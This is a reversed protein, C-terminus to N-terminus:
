RRRLMLQLIGAARGDVYRVKITLRLRRDVALRHRAARNLQVSMAFTGGNNLRRQATQIRRSRDGIQAVLALAITGPQSAMIAIRTRGRHVLAQRRASSLPRVSLVAALGPERADHFRTSAESPLVSSHSSPTSPARCDDGECPSIKTQGPDPVGDIRADYLDRSQDVDSSRLRDRTTFFVDHGNRSADLFTSLDSGKGSSILHVRRTVTDYEYVDMVDNEDEPQLRETTNFFVFRGDDSLPHNQYSTSASTGLGAQTGRFSADGTAAAGTPNCSACRLDGTGANASADYVYVEECALDTLSPCSSGHDYASHGYLSLLEDSGETIFVLHTGDPSVRSTQQQSAGVGLIGETEVLANVGAVERVLGDQEHWVFIRRGGTPGGTSGTPSGAVLQGQTVMFYVYSGDSSAGIAGDVDHGIAIDGGPNDAPENDGSIRTLRSDEPASLDFRYLDSSSNPDDNTLKEFTTFFVKSGDASAAWYTAPQPGAPDTSARESANIKVSVDDSGAVTGQDERLYLTGDPSSPSIPVTFIVRRGDRSITGATPAARLAGRGAQAGPAVGGGEAAPLVGVLHVAGDVAEYLLPPCNEDPSPDGCIPANATLSRRSEFLVHSFDSSAGAVVPAWFAGFQSSPQASVADTLLGYAGVGSSLLDDRQYLNIAGAVNPADSLPSRTRVVGKGLDDALAVYRPEFGNLLPFYGTVDQPPSIGHTAWVGTHADRVALYESAASIGRADGFGTLSSFIARDGSLSARVQSANPIVDAASKEAPSVQEYVRGDPLTARAVPAQVAIVLGLVTVMSGLSRRGVRDLM